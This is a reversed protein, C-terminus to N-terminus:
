RTEETRAPLEIVGLASEAISGLILQSGRRVVSTVMSYDATSSQLDHVVHGDRDVAMVWTTNTGERLKEPLAYILQRLVGPLSALADFRRDRPNAISIWVLDGDVSINDPFGPLNEILADGAGDGHLGLRFSGSEAVAIWSEDDDVAVGNAFDLGDVVTRVSGDTERVVLRGTGSHELLDALYDELGFRRTSTTFYIRGSPTRVVNSAFNVPLGDIEAVLVTVEGSDVDVQLLGRESDCVLLTDDDVVAIGLPRGGTHAITEITAPGDTHTTVRLIRGDEVGTLIRGVSDVRVDEPGRGPLEVRRLIGMPVASETRRARDPYPLPNWRRPRLTPVPRHPATIATGPSAEGRIVATVAAASSWPAGHGENALPYANRGPGSASIAMAGPDVRHDALGYVVDVPCSATALRDGLTAEDLYHDIANSEDVFERLTRAALDDVAFQPVRTSPAFATGLGRRLRAPPLVSWIATGLMPLRLVRESISSATLRSAVTAPTAILIVREVLSGFQEALATAVLGGRSHGVVTVPTTGNQRILRAVTLADDAISAGGVLHPVLTDVSDGLLDIVRTWTAPSGGLGHLLVVNPRSM